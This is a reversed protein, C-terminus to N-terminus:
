NSSHLDREKHLPYTMWWFHPHTLPSSCPFTTTSNKEHGGQPMEQASKIPHHDLPPRQNFWWTHEIPLTDWYKHIPIEKGKTEEVASLQETDNNRTHKIRMHVFLTILHSSASTKNDIWDGSAMM